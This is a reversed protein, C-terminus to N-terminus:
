SKVDSVFRVKLGKQSYTSFDHQPDFGLNSSQKIPPLGKYFSFSSQKFKRVLADHLIKLLMMYDTDDSSM